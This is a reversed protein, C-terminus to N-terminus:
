GDHNMHLGPLVDLNYALPPAHVVSHSLAIGVISQQRSNYIADHCRQREYRAGGM